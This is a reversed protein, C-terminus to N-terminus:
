QIGFMDAYFPSTEDGNELLNGPSAKLKRQEWANDKRVWV